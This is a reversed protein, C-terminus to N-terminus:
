FRFPLTIVVVDISRTPRFGSADLLTVISNQPSPNKNEHGKLRFVGPFLDAMPRSSRTALLTSLRANVRGLSAIAANRRGIIKRSLHLTSFEGPWAAPIM